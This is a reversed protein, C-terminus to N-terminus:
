AQSLHLYKSSVVIDFAGGMVMVMLQPQFHYKLPPLKKSENVTACVQPPFSDKM